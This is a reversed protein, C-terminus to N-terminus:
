SFRPLDVMALVYYSSRHLQRQIAITVPLILLHILNLAQWTSQVMGVAVFLRPLGWVVTLSWGCGSARVRPPWAALALCHQLGQVTYRNATRQVMPFRVAHKWWVFIRGPVQFQNRTRLVRRSAGRWWGRGSRGRTGRKIKKMETCRWRSRHVISEGQYNEKSKKKKKVKIGKQLNQAM